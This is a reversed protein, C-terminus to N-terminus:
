RPVRSAGLSHLAALQNLGRYCIVDPLRDGARRLGQALVRARRRQERGRAGSCRAALSSRAPGRGSGAAPRRPEGDRRDRHLGQAGPRVRRLIRHGTHVGIGLSLATPDLGVAALAVETSLLPAPHRAGGGRKSRPDPRTIPFNFIAMVADGLTKNLLGDHEWIAGACEEYFVDLLEAYAGADLTQSLAAYGRLDAFLITLEAEINRRRMVVKFMLECITCLNPNMRSPKIGFLRLPLSLPGRIPVPVRMQCWCGQLDDAAGQGDAGGVLRGDGQYGM